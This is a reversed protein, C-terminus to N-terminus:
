KKIQLYVDTTGWPFKAPFCKMIEFDSDSTYESLPYSVTIIKTGSKLQKFKHILKRITEEELCTGFLYIVTAIRYDAEIMNQKHFEVQDVKFREKINNANEVFEPIYEIGIVKCGIFSNLWFCSRGRGSGIEFVIDDREIQCEKAIEELSTLPTEGYTYVDECGREALFQKSILYPNNFLYTFLITLDIKAFKTNKYYRRVVQIFDIFSLWGTKIKILILKLYERFENKQLKLHSSSENSMSERKHSFSM